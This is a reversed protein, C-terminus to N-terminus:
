GLRDVIENGRPLDAGRRSCTISAAQLAYNLLDDLREADLSTVATKPDDDRALRALLASQFSDGAGVTDVVKSVPPRVRSELGSKTWARVDNHGDTVVVAHVGADLWDVATTEPKANPYLFELDEASIKILDAYTAYESVRTRWIDLDPEVTPRVNPDVSVFRGGAAAAVTTFADAVPEVVLSYSGFHFGTVEAGITPLEDKVVSCDASGLGYFVYDPHGAEDLAVLSLTTRRGSRVLYRTSVSERELVKVLRSGLLDTSIGTLLGSLGGLRAIGIAVNFPSGGARADLRLTGPDEESDLFVDFLAEGCVLYM